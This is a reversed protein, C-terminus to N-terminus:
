ASLAQCACVDTHMEPLIEAEQADSGHRLIAGSTSQAHSPAATQLGSRSFKRLSRLRLSLPLAPDRMSRQFLAALYRSENLASRVAPYSITTSL